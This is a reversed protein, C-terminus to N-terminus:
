IKPIVLEQGIQILDPNKLKDTNAKFIEQYKNADGYYKKSIKSLTEGKEVKHIHYIKEESVKIDAKIDTLNQGAIEKLKDWFINKEYPTYLEGTIQLYGDKEDSLLNRMVLERAFSLLQEYKAKLSM